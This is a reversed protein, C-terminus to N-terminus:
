SKKREYAVPLADNRGTFTVHRWGVSVLAWQDDLLDWFEATGCAGGRLEGVYILLDGPYATLADVAMPDDHPPWVMLLARGDAGAAANAAGAREVPVHSVDRPHADSPRVDLGMQLLQWAWYGSGAGVEVVGPVGRGTVLDRIWELDGPTPIGAAYVRSLQVAIDRLEPLQEIHPVREPQGTDGFTPWRRAIEWLPNDTNPQQDEATGIIPRGILSGRFTRSAPSAWWEDLMIITARHLPINGTDDPATM